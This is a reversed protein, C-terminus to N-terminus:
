ESIPPEIRVTSVGGSVKSVQIQTGIREKLAEVHSIIGITKGMSRLNELTAIAMDLTDADLTGFGEDIFLSGISHNRGALESLGLALALSVLFSEGGSLSKVPRLTDAQYTDIIELELDSQPQKRIQYRDNLKSLYRNAIRVLRALTLGQAFRSFKSGDASGILDALSQWRRLEMRQNELAALLNRRQSRMLQDQQLQESLKGIEQDLASLQGEHEELLRQVTEDKDKSLQKARESQIEKSNQNILSTVNVSEKELRDLEDTLAVAVAPPLIADRVHALSDFGAQQGILLLSKELESLRDRYEECEVALSKSQEDHSKLSELAATFEASVLKHAEESQEQGARLREREQRPELTGFLEGREERLLKLTHETSECRETLLQVNEEDEHLRSRLERLEHEGALVEGALRTEEEKNRRFQDARRNLEAVVEDETGAPPAELGFQSLRGAVASHRAEEDQRREGVEDDLTQLEQKGRALLLSAQQLETEIQLLSQREREFNKTDNEVIKRQERARAYLAEAASGDDECRRAAAQVNSLDEIQLSFGASAALARFEDSQASSAAHLAERERLNNSQNATLTALRLSVKRQDGELTKLKEEAQHLEREKVSLQPEFHNDVFPHHSSGCLPCAEGATLRQRDDEYKAILLEQAVILKLNEVLTNVQERQAELDSNRLDLKQRDQEMGNLDTQLATLAAENQNFLSALVELRKAAHRRAAQTEKKEELSEIAQGNLLAELQESSKALVSEAQRVASKSTDAKTKLENIRKHQSQLESTREQQQQEKRSRLRRSETLSVINEQLVPIEIELAADQRHMRLWDDVKQRQEHAAAQSQEKDKHQRLRGDFLERASALEKRDENSSREQSAIREDLTIVQDILPAQKRVSEAAQQRESDTQAQQARAAELRREIEPRREHMLKEKSRLRELTDSIEERARLDAHLPLTARHRELRTFDTRRGEKEATIVMLREQLDKATEELKVLNQLWQLQDRLKQVVQQCSERQSRNKELVSRKAEHEEESLITVGDHQLEIKELAARELRAKEHAFVSIDRYVETGTIKELLEGREKESAKLFAAFDGQALLVSRLFQNIDLGCLQVVRRKVESLKDEIISDDDLDVLEMKQPQIKGDPKNRARYISWKSRYRKDGVAFEVEAFCEVTHRSMLNEPGGNGYRSAKGYLAVTIADLISTKGAGTPGTIAFIGADSLSPRNFAFYHEGKLSNINKFRLALIKM